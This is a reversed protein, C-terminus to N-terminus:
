EDNPLGERYNYNRNEYDSDLKLLEEYKCKLNNYKLKVDRLEEFLKSLHKVTIPNEYEMELQEVLYCKQLATELELIDM